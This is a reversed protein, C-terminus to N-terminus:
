ALAAQADKVSTAKAFRWCLPALAAAKTTAADLEQGEWTYGRSAVMDPVLLVEYGRESAARVTGQICMWAMAGGVVLRQIGLQQLHKELDTELFSNAHAKAIVIEGERPALAPHIAVGPTGPRFFLADPRTNIHQIHIIPTHNNRATELLAKASDLALARQDPDVEFAGGEFYDMQLDIILLGTDKM